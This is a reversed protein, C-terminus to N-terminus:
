MVLKKTIKYFGDFSLYVFDPRSNIINGRGMKLFINSKHLKKETFAGPTKTNSCYNYYSLALGNLEDKLGIIIGDPGLMAGADKLKKIKDKTKKLDIVIEIIRKETKLLYVIKMM